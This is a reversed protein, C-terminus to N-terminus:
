SCTSPALECPDRCKTAISILGACCPLQICGDIDCVESSGYNPVCTPQPTGVPTLMDYTCDYQTPDYCASGCNLTATENVVPCLINGDLCVYQSTYFQSNGCDEPAESGSASIPELTTDSCSYLSTSYCANGCRIYRDGNVIPCLFDGDFCTYQSPYYNSSGCSDLNQAVVVALATLGISILQSLRAM